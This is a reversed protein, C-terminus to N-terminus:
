YCPFSKQWCSAMWVKRGVELNVDRSARGLCVVAGGGSGCAQEKPHIIDDDTERPELGAM